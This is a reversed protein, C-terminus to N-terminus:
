ADEKASGRLARSLGTGYRVEVIARGCERAVLAFRPDDLDVSFTVLPKVGKRVEFDWGFRRDYTLKFLDKARPVHKTIASAIIAEKQEKTLLKHLDTM